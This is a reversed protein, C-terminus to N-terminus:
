NYLIKVNEESLWAKLGSLLDDHLEVRWQEGLMVEVKAQQNHYEVKVACGHLRSSALDDVPQGASVKRYPNLIEALKLADSQGNCSIKLMNAYASRASAIDYIKRVNVRVGGSFDDHSVRGEIVLLQDEKILQAHQNLLESGVVVEVQGQTDALTVIAMKGRQTMRIRVGMVIGALVQPQEQPKLNSLGTHVFSTLEKQYAAYPHGSLYFGLAVKEQQLRESEPWAPVNPLHHAVADVVDGFLSNQGTAAGSQEAASVAINVGALLANRNPELKDFAGARILSEIVRRNVKRLDLRACFDFLDKFPGGQERAALIVEIASEGSGKLAGLGYLVQKDNIPKFKYESANIDPPLVEVNNSVCDDHFIRINDTNNMDASMTAALFAAPYHAKLYATQYAVLAYAAAHSKNFGYSAFKEMLDFLDAAQREPTGKERAGEVFVARQADMEEKKKKGM